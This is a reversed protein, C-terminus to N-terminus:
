FIISLNFFSFFKEGRRTGRRFNEKNSGTFSQLIQNNWGPCAHLVARLTRGAATADVTEAKAREPVRLSTETCQHGANESASFFSILIGIFFLDQDIKAGFHFDDTGFCILFLGRSSRPEAMSRRKLPDNHGPVTLQGYRQKISQYDLLKLTEGSSCVYAGEDLLDDLSLLATGDLRLIYRVGHALFLKDDLVKTLDQSLFVM